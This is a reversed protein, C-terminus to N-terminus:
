RLQARCCLNLQYAQEACVCKYKGLNLHCLTTFWHQEKWFFFSFGHLHCHDSQTRLSQIFAFCQNSLVKQQVKLVEATADNCNVHGLLTKRWSTFPPQLFHLDEPSRSPDEMLCHPQQQHWPQHPRYQAERKSPNSTTRNEVAPPLFM